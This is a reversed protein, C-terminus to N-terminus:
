VTPRMLVLNKRLCQYSDVSHPYKVWVETGVGQVEGVKVDVRVVRRVRGDKRKKVYDGVVLACISPTKM